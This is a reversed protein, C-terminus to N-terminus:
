FAAAAAAAADAAEWCCAWLLLVACVGTEDVATCGLGYVVLMGPLEIGAVVALKGAIAEMGKALPEPSEFGGICPACSWFPALQPICLLRM